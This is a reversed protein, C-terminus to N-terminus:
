QEPQRVTSITTAPVSSKGTATSSSPATNGTQPLTTLTPATTMEVYTPPPDEVVNGAPRTPASTNM